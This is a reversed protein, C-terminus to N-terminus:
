AYPSSPSSNKIRAMANLSHDTFDRQAALWKALDGSTVLGALKGLRDVVVIRRVGYESMREAAELITANGQVTLLPTTMIDQVFVKSPDIGGATVKRVIDRETVIGIASSGSVVILCGYGKEEMLSAAKRVTTNGALALINRTMILEVVSSGTSEESPM